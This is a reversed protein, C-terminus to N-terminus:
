DALGALAERVDDEVVYVLGKRIKAARTRRGKQMLLIITEAGGPCGPDGCAIESVTVADEPTLAMIERVQAAVARSAESSANDRRRGLSFLGM